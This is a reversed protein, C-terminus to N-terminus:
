PARRFFLVAENSAPISGLQDAHWRRNPVTRWLRGDQEGTLGPLRMEEFGLAENIELYRPLQWNPEAFAVVQIITTTADCCKAIGALSARLQTFYTALEAFQRDGMTYYASGEGDLKNAIWFPAPTEKRGDVQWRHYLVHIGPYPPSTIVLKPKTSRRMVPCDAIEAAPLNVCSIQPLKPGRQAAVAARLERAGLLMEGAVVTLRERFETITPLKKRADLAWQGTRLVICRAFAELKPSSFGMAAATAQEIAKRLRWTKATDLHRYYGARAYDGFHTAQGHMDVQQPLRRVWRELLEFELDDLLTTKVEAVFTALSSIDTGIAHRGLALAEVLTTGGGMFPDCILDGPATFTEIAARVFKPSFRAPYKYFNHTLGSVPSMDRAATILELFDVDSRLSGAKQLIFSSSSRDQTPSPLKMQTPDHNRSTFFRNIM